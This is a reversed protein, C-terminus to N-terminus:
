CLRDECASICIHLSCGLAMWDHLLSGALGVQCQLLLMDIQLVSGALSLVSDALQAGCAAVDLYKAFIMQLVYRCHMQEAPPTINATGPLDPSM